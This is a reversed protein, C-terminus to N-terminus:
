KFLKKFLFSFAKFNYKLQDLSKIRRMHSYIKSARLYFIRNAKKQYKYITDANVEELKHVPYTYPGYHDYNFDFIFKANNLQDYIETGPYPKLVLFKAFDPDLELAFVITDQMTKENEGPLGFMFFGWTQFGKEKALKFAKRVQDKTIGKKINKLIEENGSEVGFGLNIVGISKLANLVEENICDARLGNAFEFILDYNRKKLESCFEIVRNKDYVFNDDMFHIEKVNFKNVVVDIEDLINKVSRTRLRFGYINKTCCYTCKGYCGRTTMISAVPKRTADPPVYFNPNKLLHRAPFPLDDLNEILKRENNKIIKKDKKYFLGDITYKGNSNVLELITQEGEGKIVFDIYDNNLSEFPSITAHVGGLIIKVDLIEKIKKAILIANNFTPTTATIGVFDPKFELIYNENFGDSDINLLDIVHGDKELVAGIYLLGLPPYAQPMPTGYVNRQSPNILLIKM